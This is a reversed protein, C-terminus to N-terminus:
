VADMPWAVASNLINLFEHKFEPYTYYTTSLELWCDCTHGVPSRGLGSVGNFTVKIRECILVSSGTVYRLFNRLEEPNLDGIFTVLFKFVRSEAASMDENEVLKEIVRKPTANLAKYWSYLEGITVEKWFPHYIAPVGSNFAYLAGLPKTLFEHKAVHVILQRLNTPNPIERCDMRSLIGVLTKTQENTFVHPQQDKLLVLIEHIFASEYTSLYDAFTDILISDPILITPGLLMAALSPFAIRLPLFNSVLFGHSLITGLVPFLSTDTHPNVAPILISGGDFCKLWAEDWFQSFMDRSVGGTDHAKENQYAISFPYQKLIELFKIKYLKIVDDFLRDRNVVHPRQIGVDLTNMFDETKEAM